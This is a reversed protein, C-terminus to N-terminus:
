NRLIDVKKAEASSLIANIKEYFRSNSLPIDYGDKRKLQTTTIFHTEVSSGDPLNFYVRNASNSAMGWRRYRGYRNSEFKLTSVIAKVEAPNDISLFKTRGEYTYNIGITRAQLLDDHEGPVIKAWVMSYRLGAAASLLIFLAIIATRPRM